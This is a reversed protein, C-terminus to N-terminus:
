IDNYILRRALYRSKGVVFCSSYLFYGIRFRECFSSIKVIYIITKIIAHIIIYSHLTIHNYQWQKQQKSSKLVKLLGWIRM